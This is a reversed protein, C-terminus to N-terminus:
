PDLKFIVPVILKEPSAPSFLWKRVANVASGDLARYGSSSYVTVEVLKGSSGLTVLLRVEGEEGRRRSALPYVPRVRRLTDVSAVLRPELSAPGKPVEKMDESYEAPLAPASSAEKVSMPEPLDMGTSSGSIKPRSVASPKLSANLPEEKPPLVLEVDVAFPSSEPAESLSVPFPIIFIIMHLVLSAVIFVSWRIM